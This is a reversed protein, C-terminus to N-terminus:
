NIGIFLTNENVINFCHDAHENWEFYFINVHSTSRWFNWTLRRSRIFNTIRKKTCFWFVHGFPKVRWHRTWAHFMGTLQICIIPLLRSPKRLKKGYRQIATGCRNVHWKLPTRCESQRGHFINWWRITKRAHLAHASFHSCVAVSGLDATISRQVTHIFIAFKIM